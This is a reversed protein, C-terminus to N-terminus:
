PMGGFFSFLLYLCFLGFMIWLAWRYSKNGEHSLIELEEPGSIREM